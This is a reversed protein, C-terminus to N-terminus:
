GLRAVAPAPCRSNRSCGREGSGRCGQVPARHLGNPTVQLSHSGQTVVSSAVIPSGNTTTWDSTPSEFGFLRAQDASLANTTEATDEGSRSGCGALAVGSLVFGIVRLKGM